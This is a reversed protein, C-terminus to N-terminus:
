SMMTPLYARVVAMQRDIAQAEDPRGGNVYMEKEDSLEKVVKNLVSVMDAETMEKGQGKKEIESKQYAAIIVGLINGKQTDHEKLAMMKAKKLDSLTVM